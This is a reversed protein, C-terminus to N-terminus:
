KMVKGKFLINWLDTLACSSALIFFPLHNYLQRNNAEFLMLYLMIGFISVLSVAFVAEPTKKQWIHLVAGITCLGYIAYMYATTLMSYRWYWAGDYHMLKYLIHDTDLTHVFISCGMGGNAFNYRLKQVVHSPNIFEYLNEKIYQSSWAEKAEMGYITNLHASYQQNDVYGGNGKIGIGVWYSLKPTGYSDRLAECPLTTTIYGTLLITLITIVLISITKHLLSRKKKIISYLLLAVLVIASTMKISAAIGMLLGIFINCSWYRVKSYRDNRNQEWLYLGVVGFCYSMSDTYLSMTHGIVPLFMAQMVVAAWASFYGSRHLCLRFMCYMALLVQLVNVFVAFYYPDALGGLAGIRFIGGLIMAPIINNNCRAFYEWPIEESLGAFYLAGQELALQDHVPECRGSVAVVYIFIGYATMFLPLLVRTNKQLFPEMWKRFLGAAVFVGFIGFPLIIMKSVPLHNESKLISLTLVCVMCASFCALFLKWLGSQKEGHLNMDNNGESKIVRDYMHSVKTFYNIELDVLNYVKDTIEWSGFLLRVPRQWM